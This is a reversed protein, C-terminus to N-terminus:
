ILIQPLPQIRSHIKTFNALYGPGGPFFIDPHRGLKKVMGIRGWGSKKIFNRAIRTAEPHEGIKVATLPHVHGESKRIGVVFNLQGVRKGGQVPLGIRNGM